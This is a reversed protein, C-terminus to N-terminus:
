PRVAPYPSRDVHRAGLVLAIIAMAAAVVDFPLVYRFLASGDVLWGGDAAFGVVRLYTWISWVCIIGIAVGAVTGAVKGALWRVGILTAAVVWAIDLASLLQLFQLSPAFRLAASTPLTVLAVVGTTLAVVTAGSAVRQGFRGLWGFWTEDLLRVLDRVVFLGLVVLGTLHGITYGLLQSEAPAPVFVLALSLSAGALTWRVARALAIEM